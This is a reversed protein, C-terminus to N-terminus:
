SFSTLNIFTEIKQRLRRTDQTVFHPLGITWFRSTPVLKELDRDPGSPDPFGKEYRHGKVDVFVHIKFFAPALPLLPLM